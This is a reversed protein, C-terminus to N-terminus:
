RKDSYNSLFMATGGEMVKFGYKEYFPVNKKEEPMLEIYLYNKYKEKIYKVLHAAIGNGQYKPNVLLYHIYAVLESDDLVRVLGVLEEGSWATVVTSSNKLAKYLRNPIRWIGVWCISLTKRDTRKAFIKEETYRIEM